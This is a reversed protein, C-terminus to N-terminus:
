DVTHHRLCARPDKFDQSMLETRLRSEFGLMEPRDAYCFPGTCCGLVQVPGEPGCQPSFSCVTDAGTGNIIPVLTDSIRLIGVEAPLRM